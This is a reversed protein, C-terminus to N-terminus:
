VEWFHAAESKRIDPPRHLRNKRIAGAAPHIAAPQQQIDGIRGNPDAAHHIAFANPPLGDETRGRIETRRADEQRPNRPM